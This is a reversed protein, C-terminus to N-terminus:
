IKQMIGNYLRPNIVKLTEMLEDMLEWAEAADMKSVRILFDSQGYLGVKNTESQMSYGREIDPQSFMHDRVTYVAALREVNQISHRGDSLTNIADDLEARTLM